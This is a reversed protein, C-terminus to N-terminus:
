WPQNLGKLQFVNLMLHLPCSGLPHAPLEAVCNLDERLFRWQDKDHLIQM